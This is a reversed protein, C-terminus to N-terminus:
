GSSRSASLGVAAHAFLHSSAIAPDDSVPQEEVLGVENEALVVRPSAGTELPRRRRCGPQSGRVSCARDPISSPSRKRSWALADGTVLIGTGAPAVTARSGSAEPVAPRPESSRGSTCWVDRSRSRSWASELAVELGWPLTGCDIALPQFGSSWRPWTSSAGRARSAAPADRTAGDSAASRRNGPARWRTTRVACVERRVARECGDIVWVTLRPSPAADARAKAWSEIIAAMLGSPSLNRRKAEEEVKHAADRIIKLRCWALIRGTAPKTVPHVDRRENYRHHVCRGYGNSGRGCGEVECRPQLPERSRKYHRNCM